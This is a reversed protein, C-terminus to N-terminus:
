PEQSRDLHLGWAPQSLLAWSDHESTDKLVPGRPDFSSCFSLPSQPQDGHDLHSSSSTLCPHPLGPHVGPRELEALGIQGSFLCPVASGPRRQSLSRPQLFCTHRRRGQASPDQCFTPHHFRGVAWSPAWSCPQAKEPDGWKRWGLAVQVKPSGGKGGLESVKPLHNSVRTVFYCQRDAMCQQNLM